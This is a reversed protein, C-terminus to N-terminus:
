HGTDMATSSIRAHVPIIDLANVACFIEFVGIGGWGYIRYLCGNAWPISIGDLEHGGPALGDNRGTHVSGPDSDLGV